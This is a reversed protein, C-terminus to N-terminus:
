SEKLGSSILRMQKLGAEDTQMGRQLDPEHGHPAPKQGAQKPRADRAPGEAMESKGELGPQEGLQLCVMERRPRDQVTSM